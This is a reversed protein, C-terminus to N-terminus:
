WNTGSGEKAKQFNLWTLKIPENYDFVGFGGRLLDNFAALNHGTKWNLNFTLVKDMEDHFNKLTSFNNGNIILEKKAM